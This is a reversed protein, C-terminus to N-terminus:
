TKPQGEMAALEDRVKAATEYDEEKLAKKLKRNLREVPTVPIKKRIEKAFKKLVRAEDCSEFAEPHNFKEFFDKIRALGAKVASHAENFKEEKMLLSAAARANMMLIYPRYQELMLRDQEESAFKSCLDLTRLNRATDRIVGDYEGLVYLSLYRQYYMASEERLQHCQKGNLAFGRGSGTKARHEILKSEFYDLLSEHGFPRTGDPRGTVEMQLLGLELRMQLKVRGDSGRVKRVNMTGSEYDWEKLLPTIDRGHVAEGSDEGFGIPTDNM